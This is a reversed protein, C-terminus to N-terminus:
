SIHSLLWRIVPIQNTLGDVDSPLCENRSVRDVLDTIVSYKTMYCRKVSVSFDCDNRGSHVNAIKRDFDAEVLGESFVLRAYRSEHDANKVMKLSISKKGSKATLRVSGSGTRKIKVDSWNEPTGCFLSAILVNHIFTELFQGGNKDDFAWARNDAGETIEVYISELPGLQWVGKKLLPKNDTDIYKGYYENYDALIYLPLAKEMLYYSLFFIRERIDPKQIISEIHELSRLDNTIPKEVVTLMAGCAISRDLYGAHAGTPTMIWVISHKDISRRLYRVISDEDDFVAVRNDSPDDGDSLTCIRLECDSMESESLAPLFRNTVVDGCGIVVNGRVGRDAKVKEQSFNSIILGIVIASYLAGLVRILAPTSDSGAGFLGSFSDSYSLGGYLNCMAFAQTPIVVAFTLLYELQHIIAYNEEFFRRFISYYLVWTVSEFIYYCSLIRIGTCNVGCLRLTGLLLLWIAYYLEPLIPPVNTRKSGVDVTGTKRATVIKRYVVKIIQLLSLVRFLWLSWLVVTAFVSRYKGLWRTSESAPKTSIQEVISKRDKM